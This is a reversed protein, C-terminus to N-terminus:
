QTIENGQADFRMRQGPVAIEDLSGGVDGMTKNGKLKRIVTNAKAISAHGARENLDALYALTQANVEVNGSRARELFQRDKDTFGQGSGLGSTKIADLTSSALESALNETTQVRQGDILGATSFVKTLATRAEAGSGTIPNAKLLEKVRQASAIRDPAARGATITAVDDKALGEAVHGAYSKDTNVSVQTAPQHTTKKALWQQYAQQYQPSGPLIGANKALADFEAIEAPQGQYVVEPKAGPGMPTRVIAGNVVHETPKEPLGAVKRTGVYREEGPKLTYAEEGKFIQGLGAQQLMPLGSNVLAMNAARPDGQPQFAKPQPSGDGMQDFEYPDPQQAPGGDRLRGYESLAKTLKASQDAQYKDGLARSEQDSKEGAYMGLAKALLNAVVEGGSYPVAMGGAMNQRQQPASLAEILRRRRELATREAEYGQDTLPTM